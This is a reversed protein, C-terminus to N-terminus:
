IINSKRIEDLRKKLSFLSNLDDDNLYNNQEIYQWFNNLSAQAEQV